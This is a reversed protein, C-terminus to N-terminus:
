GPRRQCAAPGTRPGACHSQTLEPRPARVARDARAGRGTSPVLDQARSGHGPRCFLDVLWFLPHRYSGGASSATHAQQPIVGEAFMTCFMSSQRCNRCSTSPKPCGAPDNEIGTGTLRHEPRALIVGRTIQTSQRGCAGNLWGSLPIGTKPADRYTTLQHGCIPSASATTRLAGASADCRDPYRRAPNPVCRLIVCRRGALEEPGLLPSSPKDCCRGFHRGHYRGRMRRLWIAM